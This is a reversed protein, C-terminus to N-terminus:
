NGSTGTSVPTKAALEVGDMELGSVRGKSIRCTIDQGDAELVIRKRKLKVVRIDSAETAHGDLLIQAKCANLNDQSAASAAPLTAVLATAGLAIAACKVPNCIM